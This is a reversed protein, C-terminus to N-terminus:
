DRDAETLADFDIGAANVSKKKALLPPLDPHTGQICMRVDDETVKSHDAAFEKITM